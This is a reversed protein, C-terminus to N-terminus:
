AAVAEKAGDLLANVDDYHYEGGQEALLQMLRSTGLTSLRGYSYVGNANLMSAIDGDIGEISDLQDIQQYHFSIKWHKLTGADRPANDSVLLTWIGQTNKGKLSAMDSLEYTKQLNNKSGGERNHLVVEEGDPCRLKVILDGIYGHQIDVTLRADEVIGPQSCKQESTLWADEGEPIFVESHEQECRMEIGWSEFTGEDRTAMDKVEITWDGKPNEGVFAALKDGEYTLAIDDARGGTRNHLNVTAGSPSTLNIVLDGIYTHSVKVTVKLSEISGGQNVKICDTISQHDPVVQNVEKQKHLQLM